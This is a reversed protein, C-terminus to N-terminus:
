KIRYQIKRLFTSFLTRRWEGKLQNIGTEIETGLQREFHAFDAKLGKQEYIQKIAGAGSPTGYHKKLLHFTGTEEKQDTKELLRCLLWTCKGEEVDTGIKGTVKPDGFADLMDDQAQFLLGLQLAISKSLAADKNLTDKNLTDVESTIFLDALAVPLYFTYLGTKLQALQEYFQMNCKDFAKFSSKLDLLQGLQTGREIESFLSAQLTPSLPLPISAPVPGTEISNLLM